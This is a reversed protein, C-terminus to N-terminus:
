LLWSLTINTFSYLCLGISCVPLGLFLDTCLWCIKWFPAFTVRQLLYDRWYIIGSCSSMWMCFRWWWWWFISNVSSVIILKFHIVSRFTFHLIIFFILLFHLLFDLHIQTFSPKKPVVGFTLNMFSIFSLSSKMLIFFKRERFSLTSLILLYAVSQSVINAFYIDSLPSYDLIYLSCKSTLFHFVFLKILFHAM